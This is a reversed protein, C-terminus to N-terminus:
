KPINIKVSTGFHKFDSYTAQTTSRGPITPNTGRPISGEYLETMKAPVWM